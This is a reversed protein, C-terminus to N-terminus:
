EEEQKKVLKEKERTEVISALSRFAVVIWLGEIGKEEKWRVVGLDQKENLGM